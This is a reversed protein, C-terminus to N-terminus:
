MGSVRRINLDSRAREFARREKKQQAIDVPPEYKDEDEEAEADADAHDTDTNAAAEGDRASPDATAPPGVGDATSNASAADGEAPKAAEAAEAGDDADGPQTSAAAEVSEAGDAGAAPPSPGLGLDAASTGSSASGAARTPRQWDPTPLYNSACKECFDQRCPLCFWRPGKRPGKVVTCGDCFWGHKYIGGRHELFAMSHGASCIPAVPEKERDALENEAVASNLSGTAKSIVVGGAPAPKAAPAAAAVPAVVAAPIVAATPPTATAPQVAPASHLNAPAVAAAAHDAPVLQGNVVILSAPPAAPAAPAPADPQEEAAAPASEPDAAAAKAAQEQARAIAAVEEQLVRAREAEAADEQWVGGRFSGTLVGNVLARACM